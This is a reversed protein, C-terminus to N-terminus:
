RMDSTRAPPGPLSRYAESRLDSTVVGWGVWREMGMEGHYACRALGYDRRLSSIRGEIGARWRYRRRWTRDRERARQLPTTPGSRPIVVDHRVGLAQAQEEIGKPHVGRDGTLLWPARGFLRRHALVAPIAQHRDSEGDALVHYRPIIGGEVEGLMVQRGFEVAAGGKHRPIVRTHPEFLSLVKASAPVQRSELVRSHAQARVREILPLFREFQAHLRLALRTAPELKRHPEQEPPLVPTLAARVREAQRVTQRTAALLAQYITRQQEVQEVQEVQEIQEVQEVQKAEPQPRRRLRHVQQVTRRMTRLRSRFADRVSALPQAVLPKAQRILRTLVRVGDLLLGSDTPHHIATQVCTSEIRLKRGQTV